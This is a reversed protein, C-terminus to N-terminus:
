SPEEDPLRRSRIQSADLVDRAALAPPAEHREEVVEALAVERGSEPVSGAVARTLRRLAAADDAYDVKRKRAANLLASMGGTTFVSRPSRTVCEAFILVSDTANRLVSSKCRANSVACRAWTWAIITRDEGNTNACRRFTASRANWNRRGAMLVNG